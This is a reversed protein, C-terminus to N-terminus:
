HLLFLDEFKEQFKRDVTIEINNIKLMAIILLYVATVSNGYTSRYGYKLHLSVVSFPKM